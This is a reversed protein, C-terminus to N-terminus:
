RAAPKTEAMWEKTIKWEGNERAIILTKARAMEQYSGSAYDQLFTAKFQDDNIREIGFERIQIEIPAGASLKKTRAAVWTNRTNGDAPTFQQSYANLYGAIDRHAWANRWTDLLQSIKTKDSPETTSPAVFAPERLAPAIVPVGAMTQLAPPLDTPAQPACLWMTGAGSLASVIATIILSVTGFSKVSEPAPSLNQATAATSPAVASDGLATHLQELRRAMAREQKNSEPTASYESSYTARSPTPAGSGFFSAASEIIGGTSHTSLTAVPNIRYTQIAAVFPTIASM